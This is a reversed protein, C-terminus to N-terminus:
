PRPRLEKPLEGEHGVQDLLIDHLYVLPPGDGLTTVSVSMTPTDIVSTRTTM